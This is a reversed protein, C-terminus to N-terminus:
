RGGGSPHGAPKTGPLLDQIAHERQLRHAPGADARPARPMALRLPRPPCPPDLLRIGAQAAFYQGPRQPVAAMM